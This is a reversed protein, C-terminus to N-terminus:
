LAGGGFLVGHMRAYFASGAARKKTHDKGFIFSVRERQVDGFVESFFYVRIFTNHDSGVLYFRTAHGKAPINSLRHPAGNIVISRGTAPPKSRTVFVADPIGVTIKGALAFPKFRESRDVKWVLGRRGLVNGGANSKGLLTLSMEMSNSKFLM